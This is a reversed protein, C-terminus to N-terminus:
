GLHLRSLSFFFVSFFSFSFFSSYGVFFVAAVLTISTQPHERPKLGFIVKHIYCYFGRVRVLEEKAEKREKNVGERGSGERYGTMIFTRVDVDM